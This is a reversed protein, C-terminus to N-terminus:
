CLEHATIFVSYKSFRDVVVLISIKGHVKPFGSIFNMRVSLWTRERVPLPQMLSTEQKCVAKDVQCVDCTKVYAEIDDEM